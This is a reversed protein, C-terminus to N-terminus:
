TLAPLPTLTSLAATALLASNLVCHQCAFPLSALWRSEYKKISASDFFGESDQHLPVCPELCQSGAMGASLSLKEGLVVPSEPQSGAM